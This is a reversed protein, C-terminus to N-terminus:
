PVILEGSPEDPATLTSCRLRYMWGRTAARDDEYFAVTSGYQEVSRWDTEGIRCRELVVISGATRTGQVSVSIPRNRNVVVPGVVQDAETFVTLAM